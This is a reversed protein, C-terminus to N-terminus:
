EWTQRFPLGMWTAAEQGFEAAFTWIGSPGLQVVKGDHLEAVVIRGHSSDSSGLQRTSLSRVRAVGMRYGHGRIEGPVGPQGRDYVVMWPGRRAWSFTLWSFLGSTLFMLGAFALAGAERETLLLWVGYAAGGAGFVLACVTGGIMSALGERVYLCSGGTAM